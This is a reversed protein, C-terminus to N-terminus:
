DDYEFGRIILQAERLTKPFLRWTDEGYADFLLRKAQETLPQLLLGKSRWSTDDIIEWHGDASVWRKVVWKSGSGAPPDARRVPATIPRDPFSPDPPHAALLAQLTRVAATLTDFRQQPSANWGERARNGAIGRERLWAHEIDRRGIIVWGLGTPSFLWHGDDSFHHQFAGRHLPRIGSM